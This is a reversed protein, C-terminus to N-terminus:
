DVIKWSNGEVNIVWVTISYKIAIKMLRNLYRDDKDNRMILLVGTKKNLMESYYMSQGISEAWKYAFDVEIAFTDTVIDVRAGDSLVVETKGRIAEAFIDQYYREKQHTQSMLVNVCFVLNILITIKKM